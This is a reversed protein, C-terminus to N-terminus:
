YRYFFYKLSESIKLKSRFYNNVSAENPSPYKERFWSLETSYRRLIDNLNLNEEELTKLKDKLGFVLFFIFIYELKM